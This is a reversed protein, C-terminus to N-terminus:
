SWWAGRPRRDRRRGRAGRAAGARGLRRRPDGRRPGAPPHHPVRRPRLGHGLPRGVRPRVDPALLGRGRGRGPVPAREDEGGSYISGEPDAGVVVLDPRRERLYRATGTVTGGTGVGVVLHTLRGSPRSGCSPAPRSTTPRPTPRTPTSTPSSPGPSRRPSGTPSATTPARRIPRSTPRRWCWRPATPACCTSRRAAVDQRADGGDGPLGEAARRDGARHRHQGLDARRDHRRPAAPRRARRGRDDGGRRPGQDLRRPQVDRAQRGAPPAPRRRDPVPPGAAHRRDHRPDLRRDARNSHERDDCIKSTQAPASPPRRRSGPVVGVAPRACQRVHQQRREIGRGFVPQREDEVFGRQGVRLQARRGPRTAARNSPTERTATSASGRASVHTATIPASSAPTASRAASGSTPRWRAPGCRRRRRDRPQHQERGPLRHGLRKVSRDAISTSRSPASARRRWCAPSGAASARRQDDVRRAGGPRRLPRDSGRRAIATWGRHAPRPTPSSRAVVDDGVRQRQKM